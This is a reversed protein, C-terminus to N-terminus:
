DELVLRSGHVHWQTLLTVAMGTFSTFSLRPALVWDWRLESVNDHPWSWCQTSQTGVAFRSAHKAMWGAQSCSFRQFHPPWTRGQWFWRREITTTRSLWSRQSLWNQDDQHGRWNIVGQHPLLHQDPSGTQPHQWCWGLCSHQFVRLKSLTSFDSSGWRAASVWQRSVRQCQCGCGAVVAAPGVPHKPAKGRGNHWASM